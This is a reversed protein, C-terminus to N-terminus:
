ADRINMMEREHAKEAQRIQDAISLALGSVSAARGGVSKGIKKLKAKLKDKSRKTNAKKEVASMKGDATRLNSAVVAKTNPSSPSSAISKARSGGGVRGRKGGDKPAGKTKNKSRAEAKVAGSSKAPRTRKVTRGKGKMNDTSNAM